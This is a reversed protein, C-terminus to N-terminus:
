LHRTVSCQIISNSLLFYISKRYLCTSWVCVGSSDSSLGAALPRQVDLSPTSRLLRPLSRLVDRVQFCRNYIGKSWVPDTSFPLSSSLKAISLSKECSIQLFFIIFVIVDTARYKVTGIRTNKTLSLDTVPTPALCGRWSLIFHLPIPYYNRSYM